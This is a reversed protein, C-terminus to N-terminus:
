QWYRDGIFISSCLYVDKGTWYSIVVICMGIVMNLLEVITVINISM